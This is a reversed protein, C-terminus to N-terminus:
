PGLIDSIEDRKENLQQEVYFGSIIAVIAIITCIVRAWTPVTKVVWSVVAAAAAIAAGTWVIGSGTMLSVSQQSLILGLVSAALALATVIQATSGNVPRESNLPAINDTWRQGDWYRQTGAATPDPYWGPAVNSMVVSPIDSSEVHRLFASM